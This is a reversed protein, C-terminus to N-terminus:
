RPTSIDLLYINGHHRVGGSRYLIGHYGGGNRHLAYIWQNLAIDIYDKATFKQVFRFVTVYM